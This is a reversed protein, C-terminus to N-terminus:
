LEPCFNYPPWPVLLEFVFGDAKYKEALTDVVGQFVPLTQQEVLFATNMVMDFPRDHVNKETCRLFRHCDVHPTVACHIDSLIAQIDVTFTEERIRRMKKALLYNEGPLLSAPEHTAGSIKKDHGDMFTKRDCFIKVAWEAKDSTYEVFSLIKEKHPAVAQFLAEQNKYITCFRLPVVPTIGCRDTPNHTMVFAIVEEHRKALPALWAVDTMNKELANEDPIPIEILYDFRGARLLAPDIQDMHNTAALVLVGKLEEISDMETLFQGIVRETVHSDGGEGRKSAIVDLEDFFIICPAAQKAKKFMDRIGRESEGFLGSLNKDLGKIEGTKKFEKGTEALDSLKEVLDGLGKFIGGM